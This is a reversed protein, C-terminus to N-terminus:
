ESVAATNGGNMRTRLHSGVLVITALGLVVAFVLVSGSLATLEGSLQESVFSGALVSAVVFLAVGGINLLLSPPEVTTESDNLLVLVLAISFPTGVLGFALVLVLLQLFSGGIFV